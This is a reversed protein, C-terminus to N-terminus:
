ALWATPESAIIEAGLRSTLFRKSQGTSSRASTAVVEAKLLSLLSENSVAVTDSREGDFRWENKKAAGRMREPNGIMQICKPTEASLFVESGIRQPGM